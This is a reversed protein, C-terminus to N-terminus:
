QRAKARLSQILKETIDVSPSFWIMGQTNKLDFVNTYGESEAIFRIENHVQNLFEGSQMLKKRQDELEATRSQYYVRLNETRRAIESELRTIENQNDRQIADAQRTKLDQIEKQMRDIERQVTATKAEFDRVAKSESFFETYVRPLDVVAIRTIHSQSYLIGFCAANLLLFIFVRKLM